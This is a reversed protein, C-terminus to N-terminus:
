AARLGEGRRGPARARLGTERPPHRRPRAPDRARRRRGRVRRADGHAVALRGPPLPSAGRGCSAKAGRRGCAGESASGISRRGPEGSDKTSRSRRSGASSRARARSTSCAAARMARRTGRPAAAGRRSRRTQACLRHLENVTTEIGTGVNFIGGDRRPRRSCRTSSTASTSSTARDAGRRRLRADGRRAALRELFIAVVGGELAASQRPGYVNAFRLVVHGLATSATGAPSMRGRGRAERDRVALRAAAGRGGDGPARGRRLDRRRDLLLRRTRGLGRAAELTNVTGVVNVAADFGPREM